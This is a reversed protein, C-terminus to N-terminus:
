ISSALYFRAKSDKFSIKKFAITRGLLDLFSKYDSHGPIIPKVLFHKLHHNSKNLGVNKIVKGYNVLNFLDTISPGQYVDTM